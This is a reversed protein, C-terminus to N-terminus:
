WGYRLSLATWSQGPGHYGGLNRWEGQSLRVQLAPKIAFGAGYALRGALPKASYTYSIQPRTTGFLLLPEAFVFFRPHRPILLRKAFQVGYRAVTRQSFVGSPYPDYENHPPFFHIELYDDMARQFRISVSNWPAGTTKPRVMDYDEGHTARLEIGHWLQLGIGYRGVITMPRLNRKAEDEGGSNGLLLLADEFAALREIRPIRLETAVRLSYGSINSPGAKVPVTAAYGHASYVFMEVFGGGRFDTPNGNARIAAVYIVAAAIVRWTVRAM